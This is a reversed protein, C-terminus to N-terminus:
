GVQMVVIEGEQVRQTVFEIELSRLRKLVDDMGNSEFVRICFRVLSSCVQFSFHDSQPDIQKPRRVPRGHIM